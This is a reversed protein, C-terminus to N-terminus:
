SFWRCKWFIISKVIFVCLFNPNIENTLFTSHNFPWVPSIEAVKVFNSHNRCLFQSSDVRIKNGVAKQLNWYLQFPGPTRQFNLERGQTLATRPLCDLNFMPTDVAHTQILLWVSWCRWPEENCGVDGDLVLTLVHNCPPSQKM